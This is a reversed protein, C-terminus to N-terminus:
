CNAHVLAQNFYRYAELIRKKKKLSIIASYSSQIEQPMLVKLSLVKIILMVLLATSSPISLLLLNILQM